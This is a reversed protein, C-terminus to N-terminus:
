LCRCDLRDGCGRGFVDRLYIDFKSWDVIGDDSIEMLKGHQDRMDAIELAEQLDIPSPPRRSMADDVLARGHAFSNLSQFNLRKVM